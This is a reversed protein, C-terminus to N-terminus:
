FIVTQLRIILNWDFILKGVNGLIESNVKNIISSESNVSILRYDISIKTSLTYQQYTTFMIALLRFNHSVNPISAIALNTDNPLIVAARIQCGHEDCIRNCFRSNSRCSDFVKDVCSLAVTRPFLVCVACFILFHMENERRLWLLTWGNRVM